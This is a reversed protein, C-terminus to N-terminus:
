AAQRKAEVPFGADRWAQYGNKLAYADYGNQQLKQAL